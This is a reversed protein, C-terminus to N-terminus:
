IKFENKGNTTSYVLIQNKCVLCLFLDNNSFSIEQPSLDKMPIMLNYYANEEANYVSNFM